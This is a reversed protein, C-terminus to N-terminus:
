TQSIGGMCEIVPVSIAGHFIINCCHKKERRCILALQPEPHHIYGSINKLGDFAAECCSAYGPPSRSWSELLYKPQFMVTKYKKHTFREGKSELAM